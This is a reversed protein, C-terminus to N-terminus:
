EVFRLAAVCVVIGLICLLRLPKKSEKFFIMGVVAGGVTGIGTWVAYATSLSITEMAQLLLRFSVLFGGIMLINNTWNNRESVRKLGIVGVVEFLGAMVLLLWDM